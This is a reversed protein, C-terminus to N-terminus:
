VVAGVILELGDRSKGVDADTRLGGKVAEEDNGDEVPDVGYAVRCRTLRSAEPQRRVEPKQSHVIM